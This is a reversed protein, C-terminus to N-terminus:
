PGCGSSAPQLLDAASESDLYVKCDHHTRLASAPCAETLPGLLAEAAAKKKMSGPVCCFIKDASLLHPVTLTLAHTPVDEIRAFCRDDVQQQRCDEDLKVVRVAERASFDAPPDNFALHGNTGIGCCVIDIPAEALLSTYLAAAAVPDPEPHIRHVRAFALHDFLHRDLWIAFRQPADKPLGIYEDMHFATVRSWDIDPQRILESLMTAQSPAAAFIMRVDPQQNLRTRLHVAIDNAASQGLVEASPAVIYPIPAAPYLEVQMITM